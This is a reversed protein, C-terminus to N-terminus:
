RRESKSESSGLEAAHRNAKNAIARRANYRGLIVSFPLVVSVAVQSPLSLSAIGMIRVCLGNKEGRHTRKVNDDSERM